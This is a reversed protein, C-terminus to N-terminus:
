EIVKQGVVVFAKEIKCQKVISLTELPHQGTDSVKQLLKNGTPFQFIYSKWLIHWLDEFWQSYYIIIILRRDMCM